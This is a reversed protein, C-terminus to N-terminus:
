ATEMEVLSERAWVFRVTEGTGVQETVSPIAATLRTGGAAIIIRTM